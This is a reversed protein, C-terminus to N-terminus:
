SPGKYRLPVWGEAPRNVLPGDYGLVGWTRPDRYYGMMVLSKLGHFAGRVLDISSREMAALVGDQQAPSLATFRHLEGALGPFAHELAGIAALLDRRIAPASDAVFGDVFLGVDVERPRPPAGPRDYPVDAACMRDALADVVALHWPSLARLYGVRRDDRDYGTTRLLAAVGAAGITVWAIGARLFSRRNSTM